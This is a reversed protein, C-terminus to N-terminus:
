INAKMQLSLEEDGRILKCKVYSIIIRLKMDSIALHKIIDEHFLSKRRQWWTEECARVPATAGENM